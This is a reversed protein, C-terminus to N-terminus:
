DGGLVGLQSDMLRLCVCVRGGLCDITRAGFM